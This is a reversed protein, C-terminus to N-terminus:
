KVSQSGETNPVAKFGEVVKGRPVGVTGWRRPLRRLVNDITGDRCWELYQDESEESRGVDKESLRGSAISESGVARALRRDNDIGLDLM